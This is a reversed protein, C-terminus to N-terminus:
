ALVVAYDRKKYKCSHLIGVQASYSKFGRVIDIRFNRLIVGFTGGFNEHADKPACNRM